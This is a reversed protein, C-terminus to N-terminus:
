PVENIMHATYPYGTCENVPNSDGYICERDSAVTVCLIVGFAPEEIVFHGIPANPM